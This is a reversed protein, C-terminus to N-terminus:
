AALEIDELCPPSVFALEYAVPSITLVIPDWGLEPLQQVFRLTRQIGSSGAVPPFHYAIMLVRHRRSTM